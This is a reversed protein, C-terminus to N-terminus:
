CSTVIRLTRSPGQKNMKYVFIVKFGSIHHLICSFIRTLMQFVEFTANKIKTTIELAM